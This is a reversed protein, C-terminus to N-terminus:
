KKEKKLTLLELEKAKAKMYYHLGQRIFVLFPFALVLAFAYPLFEKYSM